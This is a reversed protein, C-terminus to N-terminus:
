WIKGMMSWKGLRLQCQHINKLMQLKSKERCFYNLTQKIRLAYEVIFTFLLKRCRNENAM